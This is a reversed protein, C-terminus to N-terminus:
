RLDRRQTTAGADRQRHSGAPRDRRATTVSATGSVHLRATLPAARISSVIRRSRPQSSSRRTSRRTTWSRRSGTRPRSQAVGLHGIGNAETAPALHVAVPASGPVPWDAYEVWANDEREISPRASGEDRRQRRRVSLSELLPQAHRALRGPARHERSRRARGPEVLDERPIKHTALAAWLRAAHRPKVNFDNLGHSILM